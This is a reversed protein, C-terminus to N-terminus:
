RNDANAMAQRLTAATRNCPLSKLYCLRLIHLDREGADHRDRATQLLRGRVLNGHRQSPALLGLHPAVGAEGQLHTKLAHAEMVRPYQMADAERLMGQRSQKLAGQVERHQEILARLPARQDPLNCLMSYAAKQVAGAIRNASSTCSVGCTYRFVHRACCPDAVSLQRGFVPWWVLPRAVDHM